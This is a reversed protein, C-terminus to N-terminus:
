ESSEQVFAVGWKISWIWGVVIPLTILQLLGTLLSWGLTQGRTKYESPGWCFVMLGSLFTGSRVCLSPVPQFRCVHYKFTRILTSIKCCSM